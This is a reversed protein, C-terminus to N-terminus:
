NMKQVSNTLLDHAQTFRMFRALALKQYTAMHGHLITTQGSWKNYYRESDTTVFPELTRLKIIKTNDASQQPEAGQQLSVNTEKLTM